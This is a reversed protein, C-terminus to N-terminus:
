ADKTRQFKQKHTFCRTQVWTEWRRDNHTFPDCLYCTSIESAVIENYANVPGLDTQSCCTYLQQQCFAYVISPCSSIPGNAGRDSLLNARTNSSNWMANQSDSMQLARHQRRLHAAAKLHGSSGFGWFSLGEKSSHLQWTHMHAHTHTHPLPPTTDNDLPKKPLREPAHNKTKNQKKQRHLKCESTRATRVYKFVCLPLYTIQRLSTHM